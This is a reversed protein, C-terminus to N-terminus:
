PTKVTEMILIVISILQCFVSLLGIAFAIGNGGILYLGYPFLVVLSIIPLLKAFKFKAALLAVCVAFVQWGFILMSGNRPEIARYLFYVWGILLLGNSFNYTFYLNSKIEEVNM